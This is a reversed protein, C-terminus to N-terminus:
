MLQILKKDQVILKGNKDVVIIELIGNSDLAMKIKHSYSRAKNKYEAPIPVVVKLGNKSEDSGFDMWHEDTGLPQYWDSEYVEWVVRVQNDEIACFSIPSEIEIKGNPGFPMGKFLLNYIMRKKDTSRTCGFGYTHPVIREIKVNLHHYLAAGRVIAMSPEFLEVNGNVLSGFESKIRNVIQPMNSAGGVLVIKDIKKERGYNYITTRIIEMAQELLDQTENEFDERTALAFKTKGACKFSFSAEDYYPDSLECKMKEVKRYFDAKERKSIFSFDNIGNNRLVFNGLKTSWDNGGLELDGFIQKVSYKKTAYEHELITVDLTGGGLDFVMITQNKTYQQDNKYLYYMAAAVPEELVNIKDKTLNTIKCLLDVLLSNYDTALMQGSRLGVPVTITIAELNTNDVVRAAKTKEIAEKVLYRLYKELVDKITFSKNNSVILKNLDKPNKRVIRKMDRIIESNQEAGIAGSCEIGFLERGDSSYLFASPIGANNECLEEFPAVAPRAGALVAIWSYCTGFDIGIKM